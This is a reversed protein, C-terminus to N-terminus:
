TGCRCLRVAWGFLSVHAGRAMGVGCHSTGPTQRATHWVRTRAHIQCPRTPRVKISWDASASLFMSPHITNWHVAYVALQHAMYTSLYQSSYAKSCRHIAGEETGVLYISDQGPM